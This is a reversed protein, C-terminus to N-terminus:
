FLTFPIYRKLPQVGRAVENMRLNIQKIIETKQSPNIHDRPASLVQAKLKRLEEMEKEPGAEMAENVKAMYAMERLKGPNEEYVKSAEIMKLTNAAQTAANRIEYYDDMAKRDVPSAFKKGIFPLLYPDSLKLRDIDKNQPDYVQNTADALYMGLTGFYGRILHDFQIPSIPLKATASFDALSKSLNTTSEEYRYQPLIRQMALNEIARGTYFDKNVAVELTPKIIQPTPDFTFFSGLYSSIAKIIQYGNDSGYIYEAAAAPLMFTFAGVEPPIPIRIPRSGPIPVLLTKFRDELPMAFYDEDDSAAMAFTYLTALIFSNVMARQAAQISSTQLKNVPKMGKVKTKWMEKVNVYFVDTGQITAGLFPILATAYQIPKGSGRIDFNVPYQMAAFLASSEAEVETAGSKKLNKLVNKYVQVRGVAESGRSLTELGGLTANKITRLANTIAHGQEVALKRKMEKAAQVADRSAFNNTILGANVLKAYVPDTGYKMGKYVSKVGQAINGVISKVFNDQYIGMYYLRFSDLFMNNFMFTPASTVGSRLLQAFGKGLAVMSDLRLQSSNMAEYLLPDKIEYYVKAGNENVRVVQDKLTANKTSAVKKANGAAVSDRITRLAAENKMAYGTMYQANVIFNEIADNIALERGSIRKASNLNTIRSAGVNPAELYGNEDLPVRYYPSYYWSKLKVTTAFDFNGVYRNLDILSNNFNKYVRLFEQIDADNKYSNVTNEADQLTFDGGLMTKADRGSNQVDVFRQAIAADWAQYLKGKSALKKFVPMIAYNKDEKVMFFGSKPDKYIYGKNLAESLVENSKFSQRIASIASSFAEVFKSNGTKRYLEEAQKAISAASDINTQRFGLRISGLGSEDGAISKVFKYGRVTKNVQGLTKSPDKLADRKFLINVLGNEENVKYLKPQNQKTLKYMSADAQEKTGKSEEPLQSSTTGRLEEPITADDVLDVEEPTLEESPQVPVEQRQARSPAPSPRTASPVRGERLADLMTPSGQLARKGVDGARVASILDEATYGLNNAATGLRALSKVKSLLSVSPIDLSKAPMDSLREIAAAVAEEQLKEQVVEPSDGQDTYRKTYAAVTEDDMESIPTFKNTLLKWEADTFFGSEKMGHVVEHNITKIINDETILNDGDKSALKIVNNLFRATEPKANGKEDLFRDVVFTSYIDSVNLDKLQQYAKEGVARAAQVDLGLPVEKRIATREIPTGREPETAVEQAPTATTPATPAVKKRGKLKAMGEESPLLGEVPTEVPTEVTETAAVAEPQVTSEVAVPAAKPAQEAIPAAEPASALMREANRRAIRYGASEPDSPTFPRDVLNIYRKIDSDDVFPYSKKAWDVKDQASMTNWNKPRDVQVVLDEVPDVDEEIVVGAYRDPIETDVPAQEVAPATEPSPTIKPAVSPAPTEAVAPTTLAQAARFKKVSPLGSIDGKTSIVGTVQKNVEIKDKGKLDGYLSGKDAIAIIDRYAERLEPKKIGEQSATSFASDFSSSLLRQKEEAKQKDELAKQDARQQEELALEKNFEEEQLAQEQQRQRAVLDVLGVIGERQKKLEAAQQKAQIKPQVISYGTQREVKKDVVNQQDETLKAYPMQYIQSSIREQFAPIRDEGSATAEVKPAAPLTVEDGEPIRSQTFSSPEQVPGAVGSPLAAEQEAREKMQIYLARSEPDANERFLETAKRDAEYKKNGTLDAFTQSFLEQAAIEQYAEQKQDVTAKENKLIGVANTLSADLRKAENKAEEDLRAQEKEALLGQVIEEQQQGQIERSVLADEIQREVEASQERIERQKELGKQLKNQKFLEIGGGLVGGFAGGVLVSEPVGELLAREPDYGPGLASVDGRALVNQSLQQAGETLGEAAALGVGRRLAGSYGGKLLETIAASEPVEAALRGATTIGRIGKAVKGAIGGELIGTIGGQILALNREQEPSVQVGRARAERIDSGVEGAGQAAGFLGGVVAPLLALSAGGTEPVAAVTAATAAIGPIIGGATEGLMAGTTYRQYPEMLSESTQKAKEELYEGAKRAAELDFVSGIGTAALGTGRIVGPLISKAGIVAQSLLGEQDARQQMISLRAADYAKAKEEDPFVYRKGNVIRYVGQEEPM